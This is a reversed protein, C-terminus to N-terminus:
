VGPRNPEPLILTEELLSRWHCRRSESYGCEVGVTAKLRSPDTIATPQNLLSLLISATGIPQISPLIRLPASSKKTKTTNM